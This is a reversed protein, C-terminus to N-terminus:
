KRCARLNSLHGLVLISGGTITIYVEPINIGLAETSRAILLILIGTVFMMPKKWSECQCYGKIAAAIAIISALITFIWEAEHSILVSLGLVSLLAPALACLACHLACVTSTIAGLRNLVTPNEVTSIHEM